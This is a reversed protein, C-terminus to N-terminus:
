FEPHPASTEVGDGAFSVGANRFPEPAYKGLEKEKAYNRVENFCREKVSAFYIPEVKVSAGAPFTIAHFVLSNLLVCGDSLLLPWWKGKESGVKKECGFPRYRISYM